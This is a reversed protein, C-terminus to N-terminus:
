PQEGRGRHDLTRPRRQSPQAPQLPEHLCYGSGDKSLHLGVPPIDLRDTLRGTQSQNLELAQELGRHDLDDIKAGPLLEQVVVVAHDIQVALETAPAPYQASRLIDAVSLPGAQIDALTNHPRWKLVSRRGDAWRVYAAGVQGGPCPGQVTLRVGTRVYLAEAM